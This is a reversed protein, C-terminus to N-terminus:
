THSVVGGRWRRIGPIARGVLAPVAALGVIVVWEARRPAVVHLVRALPPVYVAILQLGISVAVAALAYPNTMTRAPRQLSDFSRATGLSLDAGFGADHFQHDHGTGSVPWAGVHIGHPYRGHDARRLCSIQALFRRSLIAEDPRHPPRRMVDPDGPEMALALAPFTDTVINLWLIQLPLLPLPLGAMGRGAIGAGRWIAASSISCSSASTTTSSGGKKLRRRSPRSRDDQARDVRSGERRRDRSHGHRRRCRGQKLAPADNVGDGIM